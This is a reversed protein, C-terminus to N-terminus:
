RNYKPYSGALINGSAQCANLTSEDLPGEELAKLNEELQEVRSAGLVVCDVPTHHLLWNLAISVLSRGASAAARALHDVAVFNADRWYRDLYAANGDFRTGALPSGNTHKGTLLGGALPNYVVTAIGCQKAMPLFEDEIRRALLNYMPQVVCPQAWGRQQAISLMSCVQWSAYNSVGIHRVKGARVLADMAELSEEIAVQQDPQHLYYLDLYDTRLRTLSDNVAREIARRSLGAQDADDGMRMAVKSALVVDQRRGRLLCGLMSESLGKNYINATDVFNIGRELGVDLMRQAATEEVQSGFTMTGLCARSVNLDTGAITVREM